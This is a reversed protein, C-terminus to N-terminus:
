REGEVMQIMGRSECDQLFDRVDTALDSPLGEYGEGERLESQVAAVIADVTRKGDLLSWVRTGVDNLIHVSADEAQMVVAQGDIVRFSTAAGKRPVAGTEVM